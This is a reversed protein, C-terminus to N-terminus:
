IAGPGQVGTITSSSGLKAKLPTELNGFAVLCGRDNFHMVRSRIFTLVAELSIRQKSKHVDTAPFERCHVNIGASVLNFNSPQSFHPLGCFASQPPIVHVLRPLGNLFYAINGWVSVVPHFRVGHRPIRSRQQSRPEQAQLNTLM